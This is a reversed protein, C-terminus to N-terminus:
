WIVKVRSIKFDCCLLPLINTSLISRRRAAIGRKGSRLIKEL